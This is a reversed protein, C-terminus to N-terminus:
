KKESLGDTVKVLSNSRTSRPHAQSETYKLLSKPPESVEQNLIEAGNDPLLHHSERIAVGSEM